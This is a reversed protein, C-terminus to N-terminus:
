VLDRARTEMDSKVPSFLSTIAVARIGKEHFDRAADVVAREDLPANLRGDFQYGGRVMRTHTGIRALLHDPWDILPPIGRAAPLAIRIVGVDVLHKGEVFANTFQTTGIMVCRIASAQVGSNSLVDQIAGKIGDGVDPTTPYKCWALLENGNMLVADTNTGGVDIGIRM